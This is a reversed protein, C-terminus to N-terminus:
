RALAQSKSINKAAQAYESKLKQFVTKVPEIKEAKYANAGAFAFGGKFKGNKANVLALGICYPSNKYDCPKICHFPCIYPTKKGDQAQATFDNLIARGPMGLPSKIIGIDQKQAKIYANKFDLSADCEETAVFRSAMQVGSAGLSMINFIDEGTWLGGAAIIPIDQAFQDKYSNVEKIVQPLITELQYDPHTIQDERFGLHGGAKPGEVVFADPVYQYKTWWRKIIMSAAKASSIIPVLKTKRSKPILQPLDFPIGAGAFIIDIGEEIATKVLEEFNTLAVMINVSLIGNTQSRALRIEQRLRRICAQRYNIRGDRELMGIGAAAIVGIGGQNAVTSALGSLSIGIGMGGQVIPLSATLDGIKLPDMILRM